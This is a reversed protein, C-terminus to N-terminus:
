QRNASHAQPMTRQATRPRSDGRRPGTRLTTPLKSPKEGLTSFKIGEAIIEAVLEETERCATGNGIAVVGVHHKGVLDKLSVKADSRRNQPPHPYIVTQDLM